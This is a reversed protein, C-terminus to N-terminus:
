RVDVVETMIKSKLFTRATKPIKPLLDIDPEEILTIPKKFAIAEFLEAKVGRSKTWNELGLILLEDCRRLIPLDQALWFDHESGIEDVYESIPVTHSLPSFVVIGAKM